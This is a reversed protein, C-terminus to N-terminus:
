FLKNVYPYFIVLAIVLAFIAAILVAGAALDKILKIQPNLDTSYLDCLREIATNIAELALVLASILLIILWESRQIQFLFGAFIVMLLAILHVKFNREKRILYILGHFAYEFGKFFKKM